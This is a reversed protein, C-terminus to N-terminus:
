KSFSGPCRNFDARIDCRQGLFLYTLGSATVETKLRDVIHDHCLLRVHKVVILKGVPSYNGSELNPALFVFWRRTAAKLLMSGM